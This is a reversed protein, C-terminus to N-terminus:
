WGNSFQIHCAVKTLCSGLEYKKAIGNRKKTKTRKNDIEKVILRGDQIPINKDNIPSVPTPHLTCLLKMSAERRIAWDLLQRFLGSSKIPDKFLRRRDGAVTVAVVAIADIAWKWKRGSIDNASSNIFRLYTRPTTWRYNQGLCFLVMPSSPIVMSKQIKLSWVELQDDFLQPDDFLKPDNFLQPDDFLQSWLIAPIM